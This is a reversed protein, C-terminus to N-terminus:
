NYTNYTGDCYEKNKIHPFDIMYDKLNISNFIQTLSDTEDVEDHKCITELEDILYGDIMCVRMCFPSNTNSCDNVWKEFNNNLLQIFHDDNGRNIYNELFEDKRDISPYVLYFPLQNEILADRVSDHSSVFIWKVKGLNEKIHKIYNEPFEPHREKLGDKGILWSWNSSDSDLCLDPYQRFFSSKGCGPFAAIIKTEM